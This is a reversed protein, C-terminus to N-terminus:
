GKQGKRVSATHCTGHAYSLPRDDVQRCFRGGVRVSAARARQRFEAQGCILGRDWDQMAGAVIESGSASVEDMLVALPGDFVGDRRAYAVTPAVM